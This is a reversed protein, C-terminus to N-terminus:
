QNVGIGTGIHTNFECKSCKIKFGFKTLWGFCVGLADYMDSPTTRENGTINSVSKEPVEMLESIKVKTPDKYDRKKKGGKVIHMDPKIVLQKRWTQPTIDSVTTNNEEAAWKIVGIMEPCVMAGMRKSMNISYSEHVIYDIQEVVEFYTLVANGVYAYKKQHDWKSDFWLVGAKTVKARKTVFDLEAICYGTCTSSVDLFLFHSAGVDSGKEEVDKQVQELDSM